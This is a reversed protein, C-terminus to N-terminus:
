NEKESAVDGDMEQEQNPRLECAPVSVECRGRTGELAQRQGRRQDIQEDDRQDVREADVAHAISERCDDLVRDDDAHQQNNRGEGKLLLEQCRRGHPGHDHAERQLVGEPIGECAERDLALPGELDAVPDLDPVELPPDDSIVHRAVFSRVLAPFKTM